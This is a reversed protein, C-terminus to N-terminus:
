RAGGAGKLSEERKAKFETGPKWEPYKDGQAVAYGVSVLLQGDEIAGSLDWDPKVEDSVSHYDKKEYEERKQKSYEPPKGIYDTGSDTYLAPVGQRAFEFHDSRYYFGKEPEPDPDLVRNQKAAEERLLDELTTNGAGVIM